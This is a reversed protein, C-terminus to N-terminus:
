WVNLIEEMANVSVGTNWKCKNAIAATYIINRQATINGQSALIQTKYMSSHGGWINWDTSSQFSLNIPGASCSAPSIDYIGTKQPNNNYTNCDTGDAGTGSFWGSAYKCDFPPPTTAPLTCLPPNVAGNTCSPNASPPISAGTIYSGRLLYKYYPNGFRLTPGTYTTNPVDDTSCFTPNRTCFDALDTTDNTQLYCQNTLTKLNDSLSQYMALDTYATTIDDESKLNPAIIYFKRTLEALKAKEAATFYYSLPEPQNSDIAACQDILNTKSTCTPYDTDGNACSNSCAATNYNLDTTVTCVTSNTTSSINSSSTFIYATGTTSGSTGKCSITYSKDENLAGTNFSGSTGTGNGTGANCATANTSAWSIISSDGPNITSPNATVTVTPYTLVPIVIGGVSVNIYVTNGSKGSPGTCTVTYSMGANLAGTNFSGSTGTGNGTGANCATANTSAWSIISSDGPNITSPNATVTVTPVGNFPMTTCSPPNIAGNQCSTPITTCLPYNIAGNLCSNPMTTCLPPNIDGNLCSGDSLTTCLPPNTTGNKCSGDPLTTCSPPNTDGNLCSGDPLTTCLPPNTTGNQCSTPITTCLPYNTASNPCHMSPNTTCSPPNTDGNLCLGNSLTTCLPPNTTGNTCTNNNGTNYTPITISNLAPVYQGSSNVYGGSQTINGTNNGSTGSQTINGTNNGSTVSYPITNPFVSNWFNSLYDSSGSGSIPSNNTIGWNISDNLLQSNLSNIYQIQRNTINNNNTLDGINISGNVMSVTNISGIPITFSPSKPPNKTMAGPITASLYLPNNIAWLTGEKKSTNIGSLAGSIIINNCVVSSKTMNQGVVGFVLSKTKDNAIAKMVIPTRNTQDFGSIYVVDGKLLDEGAEACVVKNGNTDTSVIGTITKPVNTTSNNTNIVNLSKGKITDLLPTFIKNLSIVGKTGFIKNRNSFLYYGGILLLLILIFAIILAKSKKPNNEM